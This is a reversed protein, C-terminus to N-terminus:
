KGRMADEYITLRAADTLSKWWQDAPEIKPGIPTTSVTIMFKFDGQYFDQRDDPENHTALEELDEVDNGTWSRLSEIPDDHKDGFTDALARLFPSPGALITGFYLEEDCSIKYHLDNM